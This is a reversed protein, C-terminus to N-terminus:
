QSIWGRPNAFLEKEWTEMTLLLKKGMEPYHEMLNYNEGSDVGLDYLLPLSAGSKVTRPPTMNNDTYTRKSAIRGVFTNTGDMPTPWVYQSINRFYKWNGERIGELDNNHFFYLAKHPSAADKTLMDQINKGDIIRDEPPELGALNLLTPFFDINMAPQDCTKGAPIEGPWWAVMPVRFGGEYSQGKRGRLNGPSGDYWPGNDSTFLVLTDKDLNNKKLYALIEGVSWDLEQVADGHPGAKSSRHFQESPICPQHPDKHSLFLFFPQDKSREMFAIADKTFEKTLRAQDLGIDKILETHNEWYAVPWSDNAGNLGKFYDFGHNLPLHDPNATFDGLHWKGILASRYGAQGLAEAITIESAPLGDVLSEQAPLDTAGLKALERGATRTVKRFLSDKKSPIPFTVGTRIPYRGTLLGARSPSCVGSSSYFDTFKMGQAAMQDLHPTNIGRAGYASMDGYGMDDALIIIINPQRASALAQTTKALSVKRDKDQYTVPDLTNGEDGGMFLSVLIICLVLFGLGLYRKKFKRATKTSEKETTM